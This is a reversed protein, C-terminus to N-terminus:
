FRNIGNQNVQDNLVKTMIGFSDEALNKNTGKCSLKDGAETKMSYTKSCLAVLSHGKSELKFIGVTRSELLSHKSCCTRPFYYEQNAVLEFDGCRDEIKSIFKHKLVPKVADYLSNESLGFYLSDTDMQVCEFKNRAIYKCVNDFYFQLMRLKVYNLIFLGIQIPVELKM